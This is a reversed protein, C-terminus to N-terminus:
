KKEAHFGKVFSEFLFNSNKLITNLWFFIALLFFALVKAVKKILCITKLKQLEKKNMM